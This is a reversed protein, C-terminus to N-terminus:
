DDGLLAEYEANLDDDDEDDFQKAKSKAYDEADDEDKMRKEARDHNLVGYDDSSRSTPRNFTGGSKAAPRSEDSREHAAAQEPFLDYYDGTMDIYKAKEDAYSPYHSPDLFELLSHRQEFIAVIEDTDDSIPTAKIFSSKVYTRLNSGEGKPESELIFDAGEIPSFVDFPAVGNKRITRNIEEEDRYSLNGRNDVEFGMQYMLIKYIEAGFKYLFVKGNNKPNAEDDVVLINCIYITKKIRAKFLDKLDKDGTEEHLKWIASATEGAFSKLGINEPAPQSFVGKPTRIFYSDYKLVVDEIEGDINPLFRITASGRNNKDVTLEWFRQDKQYSRQNAAAVKEQVQKLDRKKYLDSLKTM